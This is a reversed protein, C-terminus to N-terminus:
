ETTITRTRLKKKTDKFTTPSAPEKIECPVQIEIKSRKYAYIVLYLIIDRLINQKNCITFKLKVYNKVIPSIGKKKMPIKTALVFLQRIQLQGFSSFNVKLSISTVVKLEPRQKM